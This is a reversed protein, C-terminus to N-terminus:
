VRDIGTGSQALRQLTLRQRRILQQRHHHQIDIAEFPHIISQAMFAAIAHQGLKGLLNPLQHALLPHHGANAAFLKRHRRDDVTGLLAIQQRFFGGRPPTAVRRGPCFGIWRVMLM